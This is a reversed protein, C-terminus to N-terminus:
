SSLFYEVKLPVWLTLGINVHDFSQDRYQALCIWDVGEFWEESFCKLIIKGDIGLDELHDIVKLSELHCKM